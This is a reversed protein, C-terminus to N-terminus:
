ALAWHYFLAWTWIVGNTAGWAQWACFAVVAAMRLWERLIQQKSLCWALVATIPWLILGAHCVFIANIFRVEGLWTGRPTLSWPVFGLFPATVLSLIVLFTIANSIKYLLTNPIKEDNSRDSEYWIERVAERSTFFKVPHILAGLLIRGLQRAPVTRLRRGSTLVRPWIIVFPGERRLALGFAGEEAWFMKENFGGTAYFAKRTCYMFAGGCFGVLKSPIYIALELLRAWLPVAGDMIVGAGGGAAGKDLERIVARVARANILTDADVFIFRDGYAARAASNRTAAIQRNNADVVRAGLERAVDATRDTSADNAVVIEYEVQAARASEHIAALTKPLCAEENHAPVLFSIM